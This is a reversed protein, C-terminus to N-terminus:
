VHNKTKKSAAKQEDERIEKMIERYSVVNKGDMIILNKPLYGLIQIVEKAHKKSIIM